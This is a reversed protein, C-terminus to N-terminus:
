TPEQAGRAVEWGWRWGAGKLATVDTVSPNWKIKRHNVVCAVHSQM